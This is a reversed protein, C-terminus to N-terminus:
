RWPWFLQNYLSFGHSVGINIGNIQSWAGYDSVSIGSPVSLTSVKNSTLSYVNLGGYVKYDYSNGESQWANIDSPGAWSYGKGFNPHTHAEFVTNAPADGLNVRGGFPRGYSVGRVNGSSTEYWGTEAEWFNARQIAGQARAYGRFNLNGEYRQYNIYTSISYSGFSTVGGLLASRMIEDQSGGALSTGVAGATAGGAFAGARGGIAGGVLGGAAGSVAGKWAGEGVNGGGLAAFGGGSIAGAAAGGAVAGLASAGAFSSGAIAGGVASGVGGSIAGIGAGGLTYWLLGSGWDHGTTKGIQWGSYGGIVAGIVFNIWEGDPDTYVLPNNGAYSYRNFTQTFDANQVFNDPSLMRAILPDYMRGNMNILAFERHHEHGTFGRILWQPKTNLTYTW